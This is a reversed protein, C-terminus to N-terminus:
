FQGPNYNPTQAQVIEDKPYFKKIENYENGNYVRTGVKCRGTAGPVANWNMRLPENKKKLGIGRFFESLFSESRTHLNLRHNIVVKSGNYNIAVHVIAQNCAPMKESGNFRARDFGDITFDYDGPPLIIFEQEKQITDEWGLEGDFGNNGNVNGYGNGYSNGNGFNDM